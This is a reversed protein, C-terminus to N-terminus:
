RTALQDDIDEAVAQALAIQQASVVQILDDRLFKALLLYRALGGSIVLLVGFLIMRTVLSKSIKRLNM